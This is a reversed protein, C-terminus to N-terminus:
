AQSNTVLTEHLEMLAEPHVPQRETIKHTDPVGYRSDPNVEWTFYQVQADAPTIWFEAVRSREPRCWAIHIEQPDDIADAATSCTALDGLEPVVNIYAAQDGSEVLHRTELLLKEAVKQFIELRM